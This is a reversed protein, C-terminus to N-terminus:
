RRHLILAAAPRRWMIKDDKAEHTVQGDRRM